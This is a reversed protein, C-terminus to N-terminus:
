VVDGEVIRMNQVKWGGRTDLAGFGLNWPNIVRFDPHLNCLAGVSWCTVTTGMASKETHESTRHQHAVLACEHTRLYATRAPNVPDGGWRGGWEHGHLVMLHRYELVHLPEVWQIKKAKLDMFSEFRFEDMDFLEPAHQLLYHELRAEHNGGKWIMRRPRLEKMLIDLISMADAVEAKFRRRRPDREWHSLQYCDLLDGLILIGDCRNAKAKAWDMACALASDDHYPIHLDALVLWREVDEPIPVIKFNVAEPKPLDYRPVSTGAKEVEQRLARGCQGRYYRIAHRAAEGNRFLLPFDRRLMRALQRSSAYSFRRCYEVAADGVATRTDAVAVIRKTSM